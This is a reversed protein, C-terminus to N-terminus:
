EPAPETRATAAVDDVRHSWRLALGAAVAAAAAIPVAVDTGTAPLEGPATPPVATPPREVPAAVGLAFPAKVLLEVNRDEVKGRRADSQEQWDNAALERGLSALSTPSDLRGGYSLPAAADVVTAFISLTGDRNDVLELLRAQCPWDVHAATNVEWFGGEGTAKYPTVRNQHTHGNVWLVVNPFQLLLAVVEPGLVRQGPSDAFVIRNDMSSPPHHSFVIVLKNKGAGSVAELQTRLWAFQAQDLSGGSEGNPNVTDLVIARVQPDPDFTYYATGDTVNKSTYGHGLPVGGSTFHQKVTETRTVVKRSADATVVRAPAVAVAAGAAPDGRQLEDPSVGAPLTFVKLPGTAANSLQFSQPFNGQVLGDHNGYCTYWPMGIGQPTFPRTAADLLGKVVPFGFVRRPNDDTKGVPTGDPHWYHEDYTDANQDAVGEFTKPDGSTPTLPTGNLVAIQWQLENGQCNDNNDGTCIAFTLPRGAAPGVGVQAVAAVISDAVQTTLFEHARYAAGFILPAGPGDNYRDLYEVRAPSQADVVHIDTLQAFSLVERRRAERGSKAKTGLEDRVRFPEGAGSALRLYGQANIKAGRVVTSDLTTGEPRAVAPAALAARAPFARLGGYAAAAATGRAIGKLVQRRSADM